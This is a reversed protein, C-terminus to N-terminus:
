TGGRQKDCALSTITRNHTSSTLKRCSSRLTMRSLVKSFWSFSCTDWSQLIRRRGSSSRRLQNSRRRSLMSFTKAGALEGGDDGDGDGGDGGGDGGSEGGCVGRALFPAKTVRKSFCIVPPRTPVIGPFIGLSSFILSGGLEGGCLGCTFFCDKKEWSRVRICRPRAPLAFARSVADFL